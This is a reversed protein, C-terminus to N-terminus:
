PVGFTWGETRAIGDTMDAPAWLAAESSCTRLWAAVMVADASHDDIPGTLGCCPSGLAVLVSDLEAATKVKSRGPSRGGAMAAIATYIEVIVSGRPGIEDVPWVPIHGALEHLVRMGTLSSKGVQSAGVLNFNSTPRCGMEAQRRETVRFRGMGHDAGDCRFAAGERAGHRRFYSRFRPDDVFTTAGFYPDAECIEAVMRWLNRADPPSDAPPLGPFFADCDAFPLGIGLDLGVLSDPPLDDRLYALVEARSWRRQPELLTPPGGAADAQAVAIGRHREGAAGSWDVGIFHRFRGATM